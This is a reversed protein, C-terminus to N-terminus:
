NVDHHGARTKGGVRGTQVLVLGCDSYKVCMYQCFLIWVCANVYVIVAYLVLPM